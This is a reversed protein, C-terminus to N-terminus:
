PGSIGIGTIAWFRMGPEPPATFNIESGVGIGPLSIFYDAFPEQTNGDLWVLTNPTPALAIPDGANTTLPFTTQVGDFLGAINDVYVATGPSIIDLAEALVRIEVDANLTAGVALTVSTGDTATFGGRGYVDVGDILVRTQDSPDYALINGDLDPGSFVTQAATATYYFSTYGVPRRGVINPVAQWQLVVGSTPGTALLMPNVSQAIHLSPKVTTLYGRADAVYYLAGTLFQAAGPIIVAPDLNTIVGTTQLVVTDPTPIDRVLAVAPEDSLLNSTAVWRDAGANYGVPTGIETFGHAAQTVTWIAGTVADLNQAGIEMWRSPDDRPPTTSVATPAGDRQIYLSTIGAAATSDASVADGPAYITGTIWMGRAVISKGQPGTPGAPGQNGTPGQRGSFLFTIGRRATPNIVTVM